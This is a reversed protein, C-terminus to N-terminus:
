IVQCNLLESNMLGNSVSVNNSRTVTQFWNKKYHYNRKKPM